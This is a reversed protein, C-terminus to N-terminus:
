RRLSLEEPLDAVAVEYVERGPPARFITMFRELEDSAFGSADQAEDETEWFTAILGKGEETILAVAGEYGPQERLDPLVEHAFLASADAPGIRMTDIELQTVRSYM